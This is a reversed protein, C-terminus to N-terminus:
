MVIKYVFSTVICLNREYFSKNQKENVRLNPVVTVALRYLSVIICHYLALTLLGIYILRGFFIRTGYQSEFEYGDPGFLNLGDAPLCPVPTM